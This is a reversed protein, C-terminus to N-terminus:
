LEFFGMFFSALSHIQLHITGPEKEIDYSTTQLWDSVLHLGVRDHNREMTARAQIMRHQTGIKIRQTFNDLDDIKIQTTMASSTAANQASNFM